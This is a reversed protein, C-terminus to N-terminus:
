SLVFKNRSNLHFWATNRIRSGTGKQGRCGSGPDPIPKKQIGSGLGMNKLPLNTVFKPTFFEVIRQFSSLLKKKPMEIKHFKHSCFFRHCFIKKVGRKQQKQIRSGLDQIRSGPHTFILIRSGPFMRSGCCQFWTHFRYSLYKGTVMSYQLNLFARSSSPYFHCKSSVAPTNSAGHSLRCTILFRNQHRPGKVFNLFKNEAGHQREKM